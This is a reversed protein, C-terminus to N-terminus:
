ASAIVASRCICVSANNQVHLLRQVPIGHLHIQSLIGRGYPINRELCIFIRNYAGYPMQFCVASIKIQCRNGAAYLYLDKRCVAPEHSSQTVLPAARSFVQTCSAKKDIFAAFLRLYSNHSKIFRYNVISVSFKDSIQFTISIDTHLPCTIYLTRPFFIIRCYSRNEITRAHSDLM